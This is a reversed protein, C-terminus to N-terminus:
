CITPKYGAPTDSTGQMKFYLGIYAQEWNLDRLFFKGWGPRRIGSYDYEALQLGM